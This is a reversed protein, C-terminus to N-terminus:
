FVEVCKALQLRLADRLFCSDRGRHECFVHCRARPRGNSQGTELRHSEPIAANDHHANFQRKDHQQGLSAM